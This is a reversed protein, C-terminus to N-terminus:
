AAEAVAAVNVAAPVTNGLVDDAGFAGTIYAPVRDFSIGVPPEASFADLVGVLFFVVLQEGRDHIVLRNVVSFVARRAGHGSDKAAHGSVRAFHNVPVVRDVGLDIQERLF